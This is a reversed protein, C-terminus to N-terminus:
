INKYLIDILDTYCIQLLDTVFRYIYNTLCYNQKVCFLLMTIDLHVPARWCMEHLRFSESFLGNAIYDAFGERISRVLM